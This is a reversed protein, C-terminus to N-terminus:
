EVLKSFVVLRRPAPGIYYTPYCTILTLQPDPTPELVSVDNPDVIKKSTVQYRLTEGNRRVLIEDGAKLEFIHRFFTDRHATIVSNGAEGPIPTEEMHGPGKSLEANSVGELVMADLKIKPIELRILGHSTDVASKGSPVAASTQHQWETALSKQTLYMDLYETGVYGLLFGGAALFVISLFRRRRYGRKRLYPRKEAALPMPDVSKRGSVKKM